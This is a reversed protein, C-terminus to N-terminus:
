EARNLWTKAMLESPVRVNGACGTSSDYTTSGYAAALILGSISYRAIECCRIESRPAKSLPSLHLTERIMKASRSDAAPGVPVSPDACAM